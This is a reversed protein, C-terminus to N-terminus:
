LLTGLPFVFMMAVTVLVFLIICVLTIRDLNKQAQGSGGTLKTAVTDSLGETEGGQHLMVGVISALGFAFFAVVLAIDFIGFTDNGLRIDSLAFMLPAAIFNDIVGLVLSLLGITVLVIISWKALEGKTPWTVARLEKGTDKIYKVPGKDGGNKNKERLKEAKEKEKEEARRLVEEAKIEEKTKTPAQEPKQQTAKTKGEIKESM